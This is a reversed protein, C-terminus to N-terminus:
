LTEADDAQRTPQHCLLGPHRKTLLGEKRRAIPGTSPLKWVFVLEIREATKIYSRNTVSCVSMCVPLRVRGYSTSCRLLKANRPLLAVLQWSLPLSLGCRRNMTIMHLSANNTADPLRTSQM